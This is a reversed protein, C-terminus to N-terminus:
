GRQTHTKMTDLEQKTIPDTSYRAKEYLSFAAATGHAKQELQSPTDSGQLVSIERSSKIYKVFMNRIRGEPTLRKRLTMRGPAVGFASEQRSIPSLFERKDRLHKDKLGLGKSNFFRYFERIGIIVLYIIFVTVVAAVVWFLINWLTHWISNDPEARPLLGGLGGGSMPESVPDEYETTEEINFHSFLWRFAMILGRKIASLIEKGYDFFVSIAIFLLSIVISIGMMFRNNRGIAEYPVFDRNKWVILANNTQKLNYFIMCLVAWIIEGVLIPAVVQKQHTILSLAFLAAFVFAESIEPYFRSKDEVRSYIALLVIIVAALVRLSLMVSSVYIGGFEKGAFFRLDITHAIYIPVAAGVLHLLLFAILNQARRSIIESLLLFIVLPLSGLFAMQMTTIQFCTVVVSFALCVLLVNNIIRITELKRDINM